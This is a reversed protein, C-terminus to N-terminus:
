NARKANQLEKEEVQKWATLKDLFKEVRARYATLKIWRRNSAARVSLLFAADDCNSFQAEILSLEKSLGAEQKFLKDIDEELSTLKNSVEQLDEFVLALEEDKAKNRKGM